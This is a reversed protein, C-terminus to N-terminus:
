RRRRRGRSACSQAADGFASVTKLPTVQGRRPFVVRRRAVKKSKRNGCSASSSRRASIPAISLTCGSSTPSPPSLPLAQARFERQPRPAASYSGIGLQRNVVGIVGGGVGSKAPIGVDSAGIARTAEHMGCTFMVTQHTDRVARLDPFDPDDTQPNTGLNALTAGMRALGPDRDRPDLM